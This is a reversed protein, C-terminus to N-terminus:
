FETSVKPRLRYIVDNVVVDDDVVVVVIATSKVQLTAVEFDPLFM